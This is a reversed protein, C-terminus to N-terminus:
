WHGRRCPIRSCGSRRELRFQGQPLGTFAGIVVYDTGGLNFEFDQTYFVINNEVDLVEAEHQTVVYRLYTYETHAGWQGPFYGPYSIGKYEVGNMTQSNIIKHSTATGDDRYFTLDVNNQKMGVEHADILTQLASQSSAVLVTHISWRQVESVKRRTQGMVARSTLTFWSSNSPTSYSGLTFYM